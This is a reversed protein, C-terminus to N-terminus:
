HVVHIGKLFGISSIDWEDYKFPHPFLYTKAEMVISYFYDNNKWEQIDKTTRFKTISVWRIIRQQKNKIPHVRSSAATEFEKTFREDTDNENFSWERNNNDVLTIQEPYCMLLEALIQNLQRKAGASDHNGPMQWKVMIEREEAENKERNRGAMATSEEDSNWNTRIAFSDSENTNNPVSTTSAMTWNM